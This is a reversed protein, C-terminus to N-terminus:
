NKKSLLLKAMANGAWTDLHSQSFNGGIVTVDPSEDPVEPLPFNTQPKGFLYEINQGQYPKGCTKEHKERHEGICAGDKCYYVVECKPCVHTTQKNCVICERWNGIIERRKESAQTVKTVGAM